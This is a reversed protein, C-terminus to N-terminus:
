RRNSCFYCYSLKFIKLVCSPRLKKFDGQNHRTDSLIRAPRVAGSAGRWVGIRAGVIRPRIAQGPAPGPRGEDKM